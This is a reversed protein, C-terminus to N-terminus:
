LMRIECELNVGSHKYVTKKIHDILLLVDNCSAKEVNIIFGSHKESVCAGGIRKGKLGCEQILTGTYYGPPRKFVSGASPFELPQKKKRRLIIELMKQKIEKPDGKELKFVVSTIVLNKKTYFSKRYSFNLNEANVMFEKGTADVHVSSQVVQSIEKGYAGANMYVAGGCSGPIGWAFELGSLGMSQAERCASALPVSSGCELRNGDILKVKKFDGTLKIVVGRYGEDSVLLNTGCGIVFFNLDRRSLEQLIRKLAFVSPVFLFLDAAGGIKFSTHLMLPENKLVVCCLKKAFLEISDM